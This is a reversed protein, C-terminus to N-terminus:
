FVPTKHEVTHGFIDVSGHATFPTENSDTGTGALSDADLKDLILVTKNDIPDIISVHPVTAFSDADISFDLIHISLHYICVDVGSGIGTQTNFRSSVIRGHSGTGSFYSTVDVTLNTGDRVEFFNTKGAPSYQIVHVLRANSSFVNTTAQGLLTIIDKVTVSNTIITRAVVHTALNTTTPGQEFTTFQFSINQVINTNPGPIARTQMTGLALATTIVALTLLKKM